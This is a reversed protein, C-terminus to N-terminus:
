KRYGSEDRKGVSFVAPHTWPCKGRKLSNVPAPQVCSELWDYQHRNRWLSRPPFMVKAFLAFLSRLLVCPEGQLQWSLMPQVLLHGILRANQYFYDPIHEPANNKNVPTPPHPNPPPLPVCYWSSQLVFEKFTCVGWYAYFNMVCVSYSQFPVVVERNHLGCFLWHGSVDM